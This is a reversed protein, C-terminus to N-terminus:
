GLLHTLVDAASYTTRGSLFTALIKLDDGSTVLPLEVNGNARLQGLGVNAMLSNCLCKRGMTDAETGGKAVHQAIPEAPCRFGIHGNAKVYASRLYGMDCIRVRAAQLTEDSLTGPLRAIKFPFGTPSAQADTVVDAAGSAALAIVQRRLDPRLGSEDCFAFLTGVQVGAAGAERAQALKEPWGTGGALWFPLGLAVIKALDVEDRDGYLPEGRENRRPEGRPPANHGGAINGEIVFGDVRGTSKKALVTALLNSSVIAIFASRRLLPAPGDWLSRPDFALTPWATASQGSVELRLAAPQGRAFADLAAPIDRPIGAGMLVVDVDALMAGYLSALNPMPIKTLLNIGVIGDHGQKARWTEVFNALVILRQRAPHIGLGDLPLLDYPEGPARGAPRFWQQLAEDAIAPLPFHSMAERLSGDPDGDQLWRVFLTDLGTGSVVGLQGRQSVARALRWGSIGAGM